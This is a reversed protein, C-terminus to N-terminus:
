HTYKVVQFMVNSSFLIAKEFAQEYLSVKQNTRCETVLITVVVNNRM